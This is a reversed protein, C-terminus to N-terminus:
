YNNSVMIIVMDMYTLLLVQKLLIAVPLNDTGKILIMALVFLAVMTLLIALPIALIVRAVRAALITHIVMIAQGLLKPWAVGLQLKHKVKWLYKLLRKLLYTM